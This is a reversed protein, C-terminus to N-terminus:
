KMGATSILILEQTRHCELYVSATPFRFGKSGFFIICWQLFYVYAVRFLEFRLM